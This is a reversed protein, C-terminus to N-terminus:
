KLVKIWPWIKYVKVYRAGDNATCFVKVFDSEQLVYPESTRLSKGYRSKFDNKRIIDTYFCSVEGHLALVEPKVFCISKQFFFLLINTVLELSAEDPFKM